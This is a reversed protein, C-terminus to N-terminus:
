GRAGGLRGVGAVVERALGSWSMTAELEDIAAATEPLGHAAFERIRAALEGDDGPEALLANRGEAVVDVLGPVRSAIVPKRFRYAAALVGTGTASRYPLVVADARAFYDATEQDTAYRYVLETRAELGHTELLKRVREGEQWWPEGVISLHWPLDEVRKLAALLVDLGKYARIAGFFLLEIPARRPLSRAPEPFQSYVPHPHRIVAREGLLERLREEEGRTHVFFLDGSRLIAGATWRKWGAAEHDVVNHCFFVVPVGRRRLVGVWYRYLPALVVTWWPLMVAAPALALVRRLAARWTPPSVTDVLFEAAPELVLLNEPDTTSQGPYLWEPYLRRYSVIRLDCLRALANALMSTHQPIGGRYPVVPALLVLRM